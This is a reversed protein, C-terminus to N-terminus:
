TKWSMEPSGASVCIKNKTNGHTGVVELHGAVFVAYAQSSMGKAPYLYGLRHLHGAHLGTEEALKRHALAAPDGEEGNPLTGQPFEWSRHVVPYRYQEILHFGDREVPIILAFHCVLHPPQRTFM